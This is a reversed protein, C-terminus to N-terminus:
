VNLVPMAPLDYFVAGPIGSLFMGPSADMFSELFLLPTGYAAWGLGVETVVSVQGRNTNTIGFFAFPLVGIAVYQGSKVPATRYHYLDDRGNVFPSGSVRVWDATKGSVEGSFTLMRRSSDFVRNSADKFVSLSWQEAPPLNTAYAQWNLTIAAQRVRVSFGTWAGASGTPTIGGIQGNGAWQTACAIPPSLSSVTAAFRISTVGVGCSTTGSEALSYNLFTSDVLIEGGSNKITLGFSM